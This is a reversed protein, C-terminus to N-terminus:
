FLYIGFAGALIAVAMKVQASILLVWRDNIQIAHFFSSM